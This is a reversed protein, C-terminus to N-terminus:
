DAKGEASAAVSPSAVLIVEKVGRNVSLVIIIERGVELLLGPPSKIQLQLTNLSLNHLSDSSKIPFRRPMSVSKYKSLDHSHSLLLVYLHHFFYLFFIHLKLSLKICSSPNIEIM